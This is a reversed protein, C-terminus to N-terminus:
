KVLVMRKIDSFEGAQIRYFYVGSALYSANFNFNYYGAQHQENVLTSVERGTIDYLKISVFAAKPLQYKITTEPNFPNPYNYELKFEGPIESSILNIGVTTRVINLILNNGSALSDFGNYAYAKCTVLVSDGTTGFQVALSDLFSKRFTIATDQGNNNSNMFIFSSGGFKQARFKYTIGQATSSRTWRYTVKTTDTSSTEIRQIGTTNFSFSHLVTPIVNIYNTMILSDSGFSNSVRLKVTYQGVQNITITPNQSNSTVTQNGSVTWQWSNPVGTSLDLLTLSGGQEITLPAAMFNANPIGPTPNLNPMLTILGHKRDSAIIIGSPFKYVGWCGDYSTLNHEPYTDYWAIEVPNTPDSINLVRVGASYHAIVALTDYIEVNHVVSNSFGPPTWQTQFTVNNLDQINWIKLRGPPSLTEDTTLIYKRDRTIASNHTFPSPVTQWSTITRLSDKNSADIVTLYGDSINSSWMTDNIVRCDHVYRENWIGRRVPVEPNTLDLVVTGHGLSNNAGNLYLFHDSQSVSHTSSHGPTVFKGVYHVSDPLYQLDVIQVGTESAESVIYAYHSYVKMERWANGFDNPAPTAVFGVLQNGANTIRYFYTGDYAGLIAYEKNDPAVYGWLASYAEIQSSIASPNSNQILTM